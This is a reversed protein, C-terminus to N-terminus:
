YTTILDLRQCYSRSNSFCSPGKPSVFVSQVTTLHGLLESKILTINGYRFNISPMSKTLTKSQWISPFCTSRLTITATITFHKSQLQFTQLSLSQSYSKRRGLVYVLPDFDILSRHLGLQLHHRGFSMKVLGNTTHQIRKIPNIKGEPIISEQFRVGKM